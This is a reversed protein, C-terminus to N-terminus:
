KLDYGELKTMYIFTHVKQGIDKSEEGTRKGWVWGRFFM